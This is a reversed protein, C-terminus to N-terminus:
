GRAALAMALPIVMSTVVEAIATSSDDDKKKIVRCIRAPANKNILPDGKGQVPHDNVVALGSLGNNNTAVSTIQDNNSM